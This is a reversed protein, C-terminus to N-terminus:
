SQAPTAPTPAPITATVFDKTLQMASVHEDPLPQARAFKAMDATSLITYLQRTHAALEKHRGTVATLEDTTREMAPLGYRAEIYTRLIDTLRVYYEKVEGKQWLGQKELEALLRLTKVHLPEPPPPPLAPRKKRRMYIFYAIGAFVLLLGVIVLALHERLLKDIIKIGTIPKDAEVPLIDKIPKIPQTTDVPVTQVL